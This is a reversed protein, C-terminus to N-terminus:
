FDNIHSVCGPSQVKGTGTGEQDLWRRIVAQLNRFKGGATCVEKSEVTLELMHGKCLAYRLSMKAASAM